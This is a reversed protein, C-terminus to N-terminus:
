MIDMNGQLATWMNSKLDPHTYDVGTDLVAVIVDGSSTIIDWAGTVKGDSGAKGQPSGEKFVQGTNQIGWQRWLDPDNSTRDISLIYDPEAYLVGPLASLAKIAEEESKEAASYLVLGSLSSSLDEELAVGEIEVDALISIESTNYRVLIRAGDGASPPSISESAIGASPVSYIMRCRGTQCGHSNDYAARRRMGKGPVNFYDRTSSAM